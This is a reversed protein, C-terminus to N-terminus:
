IVLVIGVVFMGSKGKLVGLRCLKVFCVVVRFLM